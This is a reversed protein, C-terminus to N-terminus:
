SAITPGVMFGGHGVRRGEADGRWSVSTDAWHLTQSEDFDASLVEWRCGLM